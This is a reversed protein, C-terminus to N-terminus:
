CHKSVITKKWTKEHFGCGHWASSALSNSDTADQEIFKNCMFSSVLCNNKQWLNVCLQIVQIYITSSEIERKGRGMRRNKLSNLFIKQIKVIKMNIIMNNMDVFKKLLFCFFLLIKVRHWTSMKRISTHVICTPLNETQIFSSSLYQIFWCENSWAKSCKKREFKSFVVLLDFMFISNRISWSEIKSNVGIRVCKVFQKEYEAM